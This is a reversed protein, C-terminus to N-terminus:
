WTKGYDTSRFINENRHDEGFLITDVYGLLGFFNVSDPPTGFQNWSAGSDTSHFIENAQIPANARANAFLNSGFAVLYSTRGFLGVNTWQGSANPVAFLSVFLIVIIIIHREKM